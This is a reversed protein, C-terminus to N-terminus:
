NAKVRRCNLVAMHLATRQSTATKCDLLGKWDAPSWKLVQRFSVMAKLLEYFELLVDEQVM